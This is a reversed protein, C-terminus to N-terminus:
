GSNIVGTFTSPATNTVAINSDSDAEKGSIINPYGVTFASNNSNQSWAVKIDGTLYKLKGGVGKLVSTNDRCQIQPMTIVYVQETRADETKNNRSEPGSNTNPGSVPM